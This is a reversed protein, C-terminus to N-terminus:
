GKEELQLITKPIFSHNVGARASTAYYWCLGDAAFTKGFGEELNLESCTEDSAGDVYCAAHFLWILSVKCTGM